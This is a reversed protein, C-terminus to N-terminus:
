WGTPSTYVTCYVPQFQPIVHSTRPNSAPPYAGSHQFQANHIIEFLPNKEEQNQERITMNHKYFYHIYYNELANKHETKQASHLLIM